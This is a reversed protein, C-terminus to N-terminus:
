HLWPYPGAGGEDLFAGTSFREFGFPEILPHTKGSALSHAMCWGAAPTAKFGSYGWGANFHLGTVPSPGVLASGDTAIDAIGGWVRMLRARSLFPMVHVLKATLEAIRLPSGRQAYGAMPEANGGMVIEGKDTQSAYAYGLNLNTVRHLIPKLPESVFAQVPYTEIPLKVGAMAAVRSSNGAVSVVATDTKISGRSTRVGRLRNNEIEFGQVECGQIIDVGLKRAGRAYGWAVADHRATGATDQVLGGLVPIPPELGISLAPELARLEELSAMRASIGNLALVNARRTFHDLQGESHALDLYGRPSFMVNFNLARSLKPWMSLAHGFFEVNGPMLYDARIITTNRGTNGGGLWGREIVAVDTIGHERALYYATALGHGGGGVIVVDYRAKLESPAFAPSRRGPMLAEAALKLLSYHTM